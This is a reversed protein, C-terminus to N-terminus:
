PMRRAGVGDDTVTKTSGIASHNHHHRRLLPSADPRRLQKLAGLLTTVTEYGSTMDADLLTDISHLFEKLAQLISTLPSPLGSFSQTSPLLMRSVEAM